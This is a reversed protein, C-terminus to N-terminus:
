KKGIGRGVEVLVCRLEPSKLVYSAAGYIGIGVAICGAVGGILEPLSHYQKPLILAAAGSVVGGMLLTCLISRGISAALNRWGLAGMRKKLAGLLLFLNIMSALSTALALGGHAMPKMLVIGLVVNALISVVALKLPTKTDQMAFFTSVVVRVASFAWLGMSYYLLAQATLQTAQVDFEGRQFLLAVIPERLLVLGVAAPITIFFVLKLTQTFTDKFSDFDGTAAQRSLSPLVATATAIAFVGLPFQVLRDAFYLYTVSGQTLLSGLM